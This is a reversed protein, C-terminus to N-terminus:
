SDVTNIGLVQKNSNYKNRYNCSDLIGYVSSVHTSVSFVTSAAILVFNFAKSLNLPLNSFFFLRSLKQTTLPFDTSIYVYEASLNRLFNLNKM